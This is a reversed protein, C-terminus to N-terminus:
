SIVQEKFKEISNKAQEVSYHENSIEQPFALASSVFGEFDKVLTESNKVLADYKSQLQALQRNHRDERAVSTSLLAPALNTYAVESNCVDEWEKSSVYVLQMPTKM